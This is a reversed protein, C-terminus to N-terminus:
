SRGLVSWGGFRFGGGDDEVQRVRWIAGVFVVRISLTLGRALM